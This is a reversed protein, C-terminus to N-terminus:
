GRLNSLVQGVEALESNAADAVVDLLECRSKTLKQSQIARVWCDNYADPVEAACKHAKHWGADEEGGFGLRSM